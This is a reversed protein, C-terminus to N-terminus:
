LILRVATPIIFSISLTAAIGRLTPTRPAASDRPENNFTPLVANASTNNSNPLPVNATTINSNPLEVNEELRQNRSRYKLLELRVAEARELRDKEARLKTKLNVKCPAGLFQNLRSTIGPDVSPPDVPGSQIPVPDVGEPGAPIDLVSNTHVPQMKITPQIPQQVPENAPQQEIALHLPQQVPGEVPKKASQEAERAKKEAALNAEATDARENAKRLQERLSKVLDSEVSSESSSTEQGQASSSAKDKTQALDPEVTSQLSATNQTPEPTSETAKTHVLDPEVSSQSSNTDREQESISAADQSSQSSSDPSVNSAALHQPPSTPNIGTTPGVEPPPIATAAVIESESVSWKELQLALETVHQDSVGSDPGASIYQLIAEEGMLAIPGNRRPTDPEDIDWDLDVISCSSINSFRVNSIDSETIISEGPQESHVSGDINSDTEVVPVLGININSSDSMHEDTSGPAQEHDEDEINSDMEVISVLGININSSDSMHEDTSNSAEQHAERENNSDTEVVSSMEVDNSSSAVNPDPQPPTPASPHVIIGHVYEIVNEANFRLRTMETRGILRMEASDVEPMACRHEVPEDDVMDEGDSEEEEDDDEPENNNWNSDVIDTDNDINTSDSMDHDSSEEQAPLPPASIMEQNEYYEDASNPGTWTYVPLALPDYDFSPESDSIQHDISSHQGGSTMRAFTDEMQEEDEESIPESNEGTMGALLDDDGDNSQQEDESFGFTEDEVEDSAESAASSTSDSDGRTEHVYEYAQVEPEPIPPSTMLGPHTSPVQTSTTAKTSTNQIPTVPIWPIPTFSTANTSPKQVPIDPKWSMSTVSTAKTFTFNSEPKRPDFPISSPPPATTTNRAYSGFGMFPAPSKKPQPQPVFPQNALPTFQPAPPLTPVGSFPRMIERRFRRVKAKPALYAPLPQMGLIKTLSGHDDESEEDSCLANDDEDEGKEEEGEEEGEEEEEDSEPSLVDTNLKMPFGPYSEPIGPTPELSGVSPRQAGEPIKFNLTINGSRRTVVYSSSAVQSQKPIISESEDGSYEAADEHGSKEDENEEKSDEEQAADGDGCVQDDNESDDFKANEDGEQTINEEDEMTLVHRRRSSRARARVAEVEGDALDDEKEGFLKARAKAKQQELEAEAKNKKHQANMKMESIKLNMKNRLNIEELSMDETIASVQLISLDFPEPGSTSTPIKRRRDQEEDPDDEMVPERRRSSRVEGRASEIEEMAQKLPELPIAAFARGEKEAKDAAEAADELHAGDVGDSLLKDFAEETIDMDPVEAPVEAPTPTPAELDLAETVVPLGPSTTTPAMPTVAAPQRLYNALQFNPNSPDSFEPDNEDGLIDELTWVMPLSPIKDYLNNTTPYSSLAQIFANNALLHNL